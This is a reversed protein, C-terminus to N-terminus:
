VRLYQNTKRKSHYVVNKSTCLVAVVYLLTIHLMYLTMANLVSNKLVQISVYAGYHMISRYDYPVGYLNMAKSTRKEFNYFLRDIVNEKIISVYNDRDTRTQEHFLGIAHGLEHM